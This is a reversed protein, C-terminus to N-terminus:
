ISILQRFQGRQQYVVAAHLLSTVIWIGNGPLDHALHFAAINATVPLLLLSGLFSTRPILLLAGAIIETAGVLSALYSTFMAGLFTQAPAGEPPPVNAFLLFKNLGFIIMPAALALHVIRPLFTKM